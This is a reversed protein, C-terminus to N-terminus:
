RSPPEEKDRKRSQRLARQIKGPSLSESRDARARYRYPTIIIHSRDAFSHTQKPKMRESLYAKTVKDVTQKQNTSNKQLEGVM